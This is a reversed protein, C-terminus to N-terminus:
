STGYKHKYFAPPLTLLVDVLPREVLVLEDKGVFDCCAIPRYTTVMKYDRWQRDEELGHPGHAGPGPTSLPGPPPPPPNRRRKRGGSRVTTDLSVKFLWTAGWFLIYRTGSSLAPPDFAAGLVPDHAYTFRKPLSAALEKGWLPFQRTEVDFLQITNNPFALLLVSPHMPDFVLTQAARPFSPLVCHHQFCCPLNPM